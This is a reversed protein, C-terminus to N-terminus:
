RRARRAARMRRVHARLRAAGLSPRPPLAWWARIRGRRGLGDGLARRLGARQAASPRADGFGFRAGALTRVYAQAPASALRSALGELTMQAPAARGSRALARRLEALEGDRGDAGDGSPGPRRRRRLVAICAGAALALALGGGLIAGTGLGAAGAGAGAGAPDAPGRRPTPELAREGAGAISTADPGAFAVDALQSRAPAAAPTPDRTVWGIGPLFVEVWSHADVDRVVYEARDGDLSGPAFGGAVRAPVGGMRLLLAMAGSFQQCYGARDRLLFDALAVRAPPPKETYRFGEALHREIARVYEWPTAAGARLRTALAYVGAYPSRRLLEVAGPGGTAGLAPGGREGWWPVVIPVSGARGEFAPLSLSGYARPLGPPYRDGSASQVPSSPRPTYVTARYASGRRLPREATEYVGATRRTPARPSRQIALASGATVFQSTRLARLTVRISQVWRRDYVRTETQDGPLAPGQTWRRGDFQVLNVVKWYARHAARVRLLERGDRPWSLPGYSHEWSYRTTATATLSQALEEYDLLARDRDLAPAALLGALAAAGFVAAALGASRREVRELWLFAALLLTFALGAAYPHALDHQMVPVTYLVGLAVAAALPFGLAGARRPTFALLAATATLACGGLVMVIRTWEDLGAYPTRVTSVAGIGQGVGAALESWGRPALLGAPIAAAALALLALLLGALATAAVRDRRGRARRGASSLALGALTGALVCGLLAADAAPQVMRAWHLGGLGALGAFGAARAAHAPLLRAPARPAPGGAPPAPAPPAPAPPAIM